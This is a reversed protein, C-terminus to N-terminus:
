FRSADTSNDPFTVTSGDGVVNTSVPWTSVPTSLGAANTSYLTYNAGNVTPFTVTQVGNTVSITLTPAPPAPTAPV